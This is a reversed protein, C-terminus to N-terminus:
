VAQKSELPRLQITALAILMWFFVALDNKFYPVDVLGHILIIAMSAALAWRLERPVPSRALAFFFWGVLLIFSLAGLLGTETWFNLIVTHPYLFIELYDAKHYPELATKYGGIGAGLIPRDSLMAVSESWVSKRVKGSWDRLTLTRVVTDKTQTPLVAFIALGIICVLLAAARTRANWLFGAVLAVAALAVLAGETKASVVGAILLLVTTICVVAHKRGYYMALPIIPALYLGVANPYPYISTARREMDWPAPIQWGTFKQVVAVAAISGASLALAGFLRAMQKSTRVRTAVILAVILPEIWYARFLGLAVRMDPAVAVGIIAAGFFLSVSVILWRGSGSHWLERALTQAERVGGKAIWVVALTLIFLELLTTPVPGISTRVVYLPLAFFLAEMARDFNKWSVVGFM